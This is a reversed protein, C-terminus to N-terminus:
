EDLGSNSGEDRSASDAEAATTEYEYKVKKVKTEEEPLVDVEFDVVGATVQERERRIADLREFMLFMKKGITKEYSVHQSRLAGEEQTIAYKLWRLYRVYEIAYYLTETDHMEKGFERDLTDKVDHVIALEDPPLSFLVEEIGKKFITLGHTTKYVDNERDAITQALSDKREADSMLWVEEDPYLGKFRWYLGIWHKM